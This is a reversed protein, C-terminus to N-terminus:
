KPVVLPGNTVLKSDVIGIEVRRNAARAQESDGPVRPDAKGYGKTSMITAPIGTQVLFDRVAEARRQSLQLNYSPTGVDDTYGYVAITYGKLTMMIGAIRNLIDRYEPKINAKDFDFRISKSDLTMVLGMATRRTEAIQGLADQLQALQAEREQRYAEAVETAQEAKQQEAAAQQRALQAQAESNSQDQKALDRQQAAAQANAAAQSAQQALTQSQEQARMVLQNLGETQQSLQAVERELRRVLILYVIGLILSLAIAIVGLALALKGHSKAPADGPGREDPNLADRLSDMM